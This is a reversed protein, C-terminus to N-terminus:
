RRGLKVSATHITLVHERNREIIVRTPFWGQGPGRPDYSLTAAWVDADIVGPGFEMRALRHLEWDLWICAEGDGIAWVLRGGIRDLTLVERHLKVGVRRIGRELHTTGLALALVRLEPPLDPSPKRLDVDGTVAGEVTLTKDRAIHLTARAGPPLDPTLNFPTDVRAGRHLQSGRLLARRLGDLPPLTAAPGTQVRIDAHISRAASAFSRQGELLTGAPPASVCPAAWLLTMMAACIAPKV